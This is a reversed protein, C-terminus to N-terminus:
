RAPRLLSRMREYIITKRGLNLNLNDFILDSVAIKDLLFMLFKTSLHRSLVESSEIHTSM